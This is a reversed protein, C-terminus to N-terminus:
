DFEVILTDKNTDPDKVSKLYFGDELIKAQITFVTSDTTGDKVAATEPNVLLNQISSKTIVTNQKVYALVEKYSSTFLENNPFQKVYEDKLKESEINAALIGSWHLTIINEPSSQDTNNKLDNFFDLIRKEDGEAKLPKSSERLPRVPM